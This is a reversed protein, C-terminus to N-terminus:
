QDEDSGKALSLACMLAIGLWVGFCVLLVDIFYSM